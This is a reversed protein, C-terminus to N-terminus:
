NSGFASIDYNFEKDGVFAGAAHSAATGLALSIAYPIETQPTQDEVLPEVLSPFSDLKMYLVGYM